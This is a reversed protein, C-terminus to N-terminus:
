DGKSRVRTTSKPTSGTGGAALKEEREVRRLAGAFFDLEATKAGLSERLQRIERRLRAEATEPAAPAYNAHNEEPRGEFQWKWTYLLKREVGLERALEHINECGKMREVAHQKFERSHRRWTGM